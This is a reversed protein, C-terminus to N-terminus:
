FLSVWYCLLCERVKKDAMLSAITDKPRQEEMLTSRESVRVSPRHLAQTFSARARESVFSVELGEEENLYSAVIKLDESIDEEATDTHTRQISTTTDSVTTSKMSSSSSSSNRVEEYGDNTRTTTNWMTTIQQSMHAPVRLLYSLGDVLIYKPSRLQEAPLTEEVSVLILITSLFSIVAGLVNPLLFPYQRLIPTFYPGFDVTAYQTIPESLLGGISPAFLMGVGVMSMVM